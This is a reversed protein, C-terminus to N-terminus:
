DCTFVLASSQFVFTKVKMEPQINVRFKGRDQQAGLAKAYTGIQQKFLCIVCQAPSRILFM